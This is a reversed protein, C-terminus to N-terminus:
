SIQFYELYNVTSHLIELGGLNEDERSTVADKQVQVLLQIYM